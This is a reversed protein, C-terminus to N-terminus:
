SFGYIVDPFLKTVKVGSDGGNKVPLGNTLDREFKEMKKDFKEFMRM